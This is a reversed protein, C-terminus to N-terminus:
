VLLLTSAVNDFAVLRVIIEVFDLMSRWQQRQCCYRVFNRGKSLTSVFQVRNIEKAKDFPCFKVIFENLMTAM